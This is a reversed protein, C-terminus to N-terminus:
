EPEQRADFIKHYVPALARQIERYLEFQREYFRVNRLDPETRAIITIAPALAGLSAFAGTGLGALLAAGYSADAAAPLEIPMGLTDAVIQRWIASRAGGGTIRAAHFSSGRASFIEQCDRLSYAVGEYFARAIHGPTHNFGLGVFDGRLKPDWYPSREGNLYPHFFVGESGAPASGALHDMDEFSAPSGGGSAFLTNRLWAHASACSNTGTILYWSDKPFYYYSILKLDDSPGSSLCSITAATALKITGIDEDLMGAGLAEIATDSSGRVVPIGIPLGCATAATASVHGAVEESPRVPPLSSLSWGILESIEPSWTRSRADLMLTGLADIPDTSWDDTLQSRLWDKALYLRSVRETNEPENRKLWFLHPLTWTPTVANGAIAEISFASHNRLIECEGLSRQDNWLIAPRVVQGAADVLVATHAGASFSVAGIDSFQLGAKAISEPVALCLAHWWDAPDQESWGPKPSSTAVPASAAALFKGDRAVVSAKLSGAGLDIGLLLGGIM